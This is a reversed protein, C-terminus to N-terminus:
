CVYKSLGYTQAFIHTSNICLQNCEFLQAIFNKMKFIKPECQFEADVEPKEIFVVKQYIIKMLLKDTSFFLNRM